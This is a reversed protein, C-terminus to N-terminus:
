RSTGEGHPREDNYYALYEGVVYDLHEPRFVILKDFCEQGIAQVFREANANVNPSRFPTRLPRAGGAVLAADFGKSFKCDGDRV